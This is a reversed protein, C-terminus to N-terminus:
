EYRELEKSCLNIVAEVESPSFSEGLWIEQAAAAQWVLMSLGNCYKKGLQKAYRLILTEQPNYIADFVASSKKVVDESIPCEDLNPFMGVPTGNIILDYEDNVENLTIVKVSKGLKEKIEIKLKEAKELSAKRVAIDANAGSLLTEFAFMRSVGGCGLILVSKGIEINSYKLARLFGECDTNYGKSAGNLIKVTNVSGFLEAKKSLANLLPIINIKHPITVNFGNLEKLTTEFKEFLMKEEAEVLKYEANVGKIKFLESHIFPSISHGLPCGTLAFRKESKM